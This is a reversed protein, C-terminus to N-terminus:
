LHLFNRKDENLENLFHILFNVRRGIYAIDAKDLFVMTENTDTVVNANYLFNSSTLIGPVVARFGPFPWIYAICHLTDKCRIFSPKNISFKVM